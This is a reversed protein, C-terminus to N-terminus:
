PQSFACRALIQLQSRKFKKVRIAVQDGLAAVYVRVVVHDLVLDVNPRLLANDTNHVSLLQTRERADVVVKPKQNAPRCRFIAQNLHKVAPLAARM